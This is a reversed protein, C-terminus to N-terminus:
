ARANRRSARSSIRIRGVGPTGFFRCVDVTGPDNATRRGAFAYGTRQWAGAVRGGDLAAAEEPFATLFYHGLTANFYEIAIPAAPDATLRHIAGDRLDSWYVEGDDDEGFRRRDPPRNRAIVEARGSPRRPRPRRGCAARAFDGYLYRGLLVPVSRGRYVVGGTVSCGQDHDYTLVPPTFVAHAARRVPGGLNTCANGEMVRWGFNAGPAQGARCSTSKRSPTGARRRRHLPRRHRSRLQIAVSQARRAGLDRPPRRGVAYPNGPPIAYPAAGDVDIRLMKGLLEQPNQARNSPTTAAAATAWASTSIVTPASGSRAATTIPTVAARRDAARQAVGPRRRDAIRRRQRSVLRDGDRRRRRAHLQRLVQRQDRVASPVRPGAAGARRRLRGAVSIDLFPTALLAGDRMIRIRGAQEVVFLQASGAGTHSSTSRTRSRRRRRTRSQGAVGGRRRARGASRPEGASRSALSCSRDNRLRM